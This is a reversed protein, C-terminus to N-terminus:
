IVGPVQFHLHTVLVGDFVHSKKFGPGRGERGGGREKEEGRVGERGQGERRGEGERGGERRRGVREGGTIPAWWVNCPSPTLSMANLTSSQRERYLTPKYTIHLPLACILVTVESLLAELVILRLNVDDTRIRM